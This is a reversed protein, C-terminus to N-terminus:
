PVLAGFDGEIIFEEVQKEELQLEEQIKSFSMDSSSEALQMFTLLRMKKM